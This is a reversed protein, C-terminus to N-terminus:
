ARCRQLLAEVVDLRERLEDRYARHDTHRIEVLLRARESEVLEAVIEREHGSLPLTEQRAPSM